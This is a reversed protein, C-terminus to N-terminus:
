WEWLCEETNADIVEAVNVIGTDNIKRVVTEKLERAMAIEAKCDMDSDLLSGFRDDIEVEVTKFVSYTVSVKM